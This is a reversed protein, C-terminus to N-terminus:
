EEKKSIDLTGNFADPCDSTSDTCAPIPIVGSLVNSSYCDGLDFGFDLVYNASGDVPNDPDNIPPVVNVINALTGCSSFVQPTEGCDAPVVEVSFDINPLLVVDITPFMVNGIACEIVFSLSTQIPECGSVSAMILVVFIKNEDRSFEFGDILDPGSIFFDDISSETNDDFEICVVNQGPCLPQPINVISPCCVFECSGDDCVANPNFNCADFDTCGSVGSSCDVTVTRGFNEQCPTGEFLTVFYSLQGQVDTGCEGATGTEQYCIAGSAVNVVAGLGNEGPSCGPEEVITSELNPYFNVPVDISELLSGDDCFVTLTIVVPFPECGENVYCEGAEGTGDTWLAFDVTPNISSFYTVTYLDNAIGGQGSTTLIFPISVCGFCNNEPYDLIQIGTYDDCQSKM